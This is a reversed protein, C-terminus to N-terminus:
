LTAKYLQKDTSLNNTLINVQSFSFNKMDRPIISWIQPGLHSLTETGHYVSKVNRGLFSRQGPYKSHTNLPLVFTMIKPSLGYAVKYLEIALTQINREHITFSEDKALLETFTSKSDKYVLRLAREHISNIRNNLKRSHFMWVLPCYGFQSLIFSKMTVQRQDFSMFRGVRSLAHLKQSAKTCISSVHEDFTLKNDFKIGLLKESNSNQITIKDMKVSYEQNTDSLILHFKDPNAKLGNNRIWNLLIKSESELQSVVSPISEACAFPTNDDAYNAIDLLLFSFLDNSNINFLPPGLISGQPVGCLIERWSSFSSNIQVRQLRDSLYSYVLSLYDFGYADLKAILLDHVLCDFSKSLDTLLIGGKGGGDLCKRLKEIMFLLCNQASMGKRFGCLFISLKDNMYDNVQYSMLREFIKSLAPLISVPRYNRKIHKDHDKFIPSIDALKQNKPFIGTNIACNFDILLKPGFIDFHEKLIKAPISDIPCAKSESLNSIETIVAKLAIPKFSFQNNESSVEKIKLISPHNEYKKIASYIFDDNNEDACIFYKDFSFTEYPEINLNKVANSFFDNFIESITADDNVIVENEVLTINDTSAANESFLPKVTRWFSKNDCISAPNLNKYHAKEGKKVLFRM